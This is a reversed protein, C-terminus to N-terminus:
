SEGDLIRAIATSTLWAKLADVLYTVESDTYGTKPSDIVLYVSASVEKVLGTLPDTANKTNELRAVRRNRGNETHSIRFTHVADGSRYTSNQGERKILPM